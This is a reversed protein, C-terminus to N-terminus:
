RRFAQELKELGAEIVNNEAEAERISAAARALQNGVAVDLHIAAVHVDSGVVHFGAVFDRDFVFRFRTLERQAIELERLDRGNGIPQHGIAIRKLPLTERIGVRSSICGITM